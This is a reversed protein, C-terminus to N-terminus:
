PIVVAGKISLDVLCHSLSTPQFQLMNVFETVVTLARFSSVDAVIRGALKVANVICQRM